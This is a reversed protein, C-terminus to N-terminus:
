DFSWHYILPETLFEPFFQCRFCKAVFKVFEVFKRRDCVVTHTTTSAARVARKNKHLEHFEHGTKRQPETDRHGIVDERRGGDIVFSWHCIIRSWHFPEAEINNTM